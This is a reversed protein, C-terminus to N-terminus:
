LIARRVTAFYLSCSFIDTARKLFSNHHYVVSLLRRVVSLLGSVINSHDIAPPRSKGNQGMKKRNNKVRQENRKIYNCKQNIVM